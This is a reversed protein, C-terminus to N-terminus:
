KTLRKLMQVSGGAWGAEYAKKCGILVIDNLESDKALSLKLLALLGNWSEEMVLKDEELMQEPTMNNKIEEETLLAEGNIAGYTRETTGNDIEYNM